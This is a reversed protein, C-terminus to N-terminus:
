TGPYAVDTSPCQYDGIVRVNGTQVSLGDGGTRATSVMTLVFSGSTSVVISKMAEAYLARTSYRPDFLIAAGAVVVVATPVTMVSKATTGAVGAPVDIRVFHGKPGTGCTVHDVTVLPYFPAQLVGPRVGDIMLSSVAAVTTSTTSTPAVTTTASTAVSHSCGAMAVLVVAVGVAVAVGVSLPSRRGGSAGRRSRAMAQGNGDGFQMTVMIGVVPVPVRATKSVGDERHLIPATVVVSRGGKWSSNATPPIDHPEQAARTSRM